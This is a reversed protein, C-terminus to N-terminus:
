SRSAQLETARRRSRTASRSHEFTFRASKPAGERGLVRALTAKVTAADDDFAGHTRAAAADLAGALQTNPALVWAHPATSLTKSAEKDKRVFKEMGLIPEGDPRLLPIRARAEFANSVLYLLSKNYIRACHDDQEAKDTLTFLTFRGIGGSAMLPLYCERFVKMTCAPAWMSCTRVPVGLGKMGAAIGGTITGKTALLQALGAHFISGASHGVLHVEYSPDKAVLKALEGAVYRAGGYSETTAFGANEKMESWVSKGTLVRAIPELADDLRNLMFDKASDLIGESKRRSFADQLINTLTTWYDTRWLFALPYVEAALFSSRYDAIRQVASGESVLGGHAYLLIRKKKWNQTIRPIDSAVLAEVEAKSTGYTGSDRLRGDNGICIVHPRLDAQAYSERGGAAASRSSSAAEATVLELPVGLRAVWVDSGHALWDDYAIRAFGGKGWGRGWSNQIWLGKKDYAVIAYAHGGLKRHKDREFPIVGNRQVEDWGSHVESSAYLIGVEALAAHMAVLDKHNVRFYAGLPRTAADRAREESLVSDNKGPKHKWLDRHCVGHKHWGKMGGRASSGEYDDGPWEDYRRAMDYLMRPSVPERRPVVKRTWLLYNAVAALGFGTCAGEEGQDLIPLKLAKYDALPIEEPVEVLTPVYMRDRFDLTDPRADYTRAPAKKTTRRRTPKKKAM